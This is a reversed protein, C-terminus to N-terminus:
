RKSARLRKWQLRLFRRLKAGLSRSSDEFQTEKESPQANAEPLEFYRNELSALSRVFARALAQQIDHNLVGNQGSLWKNKIHLSGRQIIASGLNIGIGAMVAAGVTGGLSWGIGVVSATALVETLTALHEKSIM